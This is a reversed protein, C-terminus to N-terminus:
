TSSVGSRAVATREPLQGTHLEAAFDPAIRALVLEAAARLEPSLALLLDTNDREIAELAAILPAWTDADPLSRLLARAQDTHGHRVVESFFGL